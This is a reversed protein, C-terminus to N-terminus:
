VMFVAFTYFQKEYRILYRILNMAIGLGEVNGSSFKASIKVKENKEM